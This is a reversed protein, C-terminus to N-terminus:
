DIQLPAAFARGGEIMTTDPNVDFDHFPFVTIGSKMLLKSAQEVYGAAVLGRDAVLLSRRFGLEGALSGLQELAGNGFVVRVQPHFDFSQM